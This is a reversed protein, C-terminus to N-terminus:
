GHNLRERGPYKGSHSYRRGRHCNPSPGGFRRSSARTTPRRRSFSLPWATGSPHGQSGSEFLSRQTRPLVPGFHRLVLVELDPLSNILTSRSSRVRTVGRKVNVHLSRTTLRVLSIRFETLPNRLSVEARGRPNMFFSDPHDTSTLADRFFVM